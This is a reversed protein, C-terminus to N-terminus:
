PAGVLSFLLGALIAGQYFDPAGVGPRAALALVFLLTLPKTICFLRRAGRYHSAICVGACALTLFILTIDVTQPAAM